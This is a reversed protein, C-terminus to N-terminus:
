TIYQLLLALFGLQSQNISYARSIQELQTENKNWNENLSGSQNSQEMKTGIKM